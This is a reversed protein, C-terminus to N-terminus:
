GVRQEGVHRQDETEIAGAEALAVAGGRHEGIAVVAIQRLREVVIEGAEAPRVAVLLDERVGFSISAKESSASPLEAPTNLGSFSSHTFACCRRRVEALSSAWSTLGNM